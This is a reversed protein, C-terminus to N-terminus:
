VRQMAGTELDAVYHHTGNIVIEPYRTGNFTVWATVEHHAAIQKGDRLVVVDVVASWVLRGSLPYPNVADDKLAVVDEWDTASTWDFSRAGSPEQDTFDANLTDDAEGNFTLRDTSPEIGTVDHLASHGVTATYHPSSFSGTARAAVVMRVATTDYGPLEVGDADFFTISLTYTVSGSAFTTEAAATPFGGSTASVASERAADIEVMAGGNGSSLSAALQAAIVDADQTTLSNEPSTPNDSCGSLVLVAAMALAAAPARLQPRM